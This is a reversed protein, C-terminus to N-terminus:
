FIAGLRLGYEQSTNAPEMGSVIFLGGVGTSVNSDEIDWYRYYPEFVLSMSPFERIFKVAGRVGFGDHQKNTIDPYANSVDSLHSEQRGHLFIDYEISPSVIWNETIRAAMELGVPIYFYNAEREYGSAGTSSVLGSTDDNLYRYGFGVLPTIRVNKGMLLDKGALVRAEYTWDTIGDITGSSNSKYDVEGYNFRGELKYVDLVDELASHGRAPRYTYNAYVGFLDGKDVLDFVDEEYRFHNYEFGAEVTNIDQVGREFTNASMMPSSRNTDVTMDSSARNEEYNKVQALQYSEKAPVVDNNMGQEKVVDDVTKQAEPDQRNKEIVDDLNKEPIDGEPIVSENLMENAMQQHRQIMDDLSSNKELDDGFQGDNKEKTVCVDDWDIDKRSSKQSFCKLKKEMIYDRSPASSAQVSSVNLFVGILAVCLVNVTSNTNSM